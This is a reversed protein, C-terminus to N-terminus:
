KFEVLRLWLVEQVWEWDRHINWYAVVRWNNQLYKFIFHYLLFSPFFCHCFWFYFYFHFYFYFLFLLLLLLLNYDFISMFLFILFLFYFFAILDFIFYYNIFFDNQLVLKTSYFYNEINSGIISNQKRRLDLIIKLNCLYILLYIILLYTHYTNRPAVVGSYNKKKKKRRQFPFNIKCKIIFLLNSVNIEIFFM